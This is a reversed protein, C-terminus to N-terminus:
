RPVVRAARSPKLSRDATGFLHDWLPTTFGFNVPRKSGHHRLHRRVCGSLWTALLTPRGHHAVHHLIGYWLFGMMVGATLGSAAVFSWGRWTPLFFVAWFVALTLWTPTGLLARPSRHHAEHMPAIIPVRHLVWRHLVYELLTWAALGLAFEGLWQLRVPWQNRLWVHLALALVIISYVIFDGYYATKSLRMSCDLLWSYRDWLLMGSGACAVLLKRDFKFTCLESVTRM